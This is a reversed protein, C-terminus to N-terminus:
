HEMKLSNKPLDYNINMAMNVCSWGKYILFPELLFRLVFCLGMEL